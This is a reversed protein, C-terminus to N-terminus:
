RSATPRLVMMTPWWDWTKCSKGKMICHSAFDKHKCDLSTIGLEQVTTLEDPTCVGDQNKDVWVKLGELEKGSIVGDANKDRLMALKQYGDVFGVATGFLQRGGVVKVEDIPAVLLGSKPGVWEVLNPQGTGTIDFMKARSINFRAPHPQWDNKDVDPKDNNYIDIIIPSVSVFGVVDHLVATLLAELASGSVTIIAM